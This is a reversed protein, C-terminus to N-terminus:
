AASASTPVHPLSPVIRPNARQFMSHASVKEDSYSPFAKHMGQKRSVARDHAFEQQYRQINDYTYPEISGEPTELKGNKLYDIATKRCWQTLTSQTAKSGSSCEEFIAEVGAAASNVGAAATLSLAASAGGNGTVDQYIQISQPDTGLGIGQGLSNWFASFLLSFKKVGLVVTDILSIPRDFSWKVRQKLADYNEKCESVFQLPHSVARICGKFFVPIAYLADLIGDRMTISFKALNVLNFYNFNIGVAIGDIFIATFIQSFTNGASGLWTNVKATQQLFLLAKQHYLGATAICAVVFVATMLLLVALNVIVKLIHGAWQSASATQYGPLTFINKFYQLLGKYRENAILDAFCVFFACALAVATVGAIIGALSMIFVPPAAFGMGLMLATIATSATSYSLFGISLAGSVAIVLSAIILLKKIMSVNDGNKDKFLKLFFLKKLTEQCSGKFLVYNVLFGCVGITLLAPIVPIFSFMVAAAIGEGIGVIVACVLAIKLIRQKWNRQRQKKASIDTKRQADLIAQIEEETLNKEKLHDIVMYNQAYIGGELMAEIHPYKDHPFSGINNGQWWDKLRQLKTRTDTQAYQHKLQRYLKRLNIIRKGHEIQYHEAIHHLMKKIKKAQGPHTDELGNSVLVDYVEYLKDMFAQCVRDPNKPNETQTQKLYQNLETILDFRKKNKDGEIDDLGLRIYERLLEFINQNYPCFGSSFPLMQWGLTRWPKKDIYDLTTLIEDSMQHAKSTDKFYAHNNAPITPTDVTPESTHHPITDNSGM